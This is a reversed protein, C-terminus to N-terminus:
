ETPQPVKKVPFFLESPLKEEPIDKPDGYAIMGPPGSIMYGNEGAWKALGGFGEAAKQYPGLAFQVAMTSDEFEELQLGAEKLKDLDGPPSVPIRLQTLYQAPDQANPPGVLFVMMMDGMPLLGNGMIKGFLAGIAGGIEEYPGKHMAVAAWHKPLPRVAPVGVPPQNPRDFATDAVPTFDFQEVTDKMLEKGDFSMTTVKALKLNAVDEYELMDHTLLGNQGAYDAEFSGRRLLGTEQDFYLTIAMPAKAGTVKVVDVPSDDISEEGLYELNVDETLLPYICFVHYSWLTQAMSKKEMSPCDVVVEGHLTWCDDSSYAMTLGTDIAMLMKDPAQWLSKMTYDAGYYKGKSVMSMSSTKEELAAAGGMAEVARTVISLASKEPPEDIASRDTDGANKQANATDAVAEQGASSAGDTAGDAPVPQQVKSADVAPEDGAKSLAGEPAKDANQSVANKDGMEQSQEKEDKKCGALAFLLLLAMLTANMKM